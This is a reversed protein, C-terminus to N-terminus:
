NNLIIVAYRKLYFLELMGISAILIILAEHIIDEKMTKITGQVVEINQYGLQYVKQLTTGVYYYDDVLSVIKYIKSHNFRNSTM